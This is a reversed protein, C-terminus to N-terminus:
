EQAASSKGLKRETGSLLREINDRHSFIVFLAGFVAFIAHPGYVGFQGSIALITVTLGAVAASIISGLSVYRTLYIPIILAVLGTLIALPAMALIGGGGTAVGRGGKFGIFMSFNHGLLAAFAAIAECGAQWNHDTLSVHGSPLPFFVFRALLVAAVGKGVDLLVVLLAPGAGMARMANTAGTKGSGQTRPDPKGFLRSIVVSSPISGLVYGVLAAIAYRLIVQAPSM